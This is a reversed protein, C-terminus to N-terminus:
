VKVKVCSVRTVTSVPSAERTFERAVPDPSVVADTDSALEKWNVSISAYPFTM